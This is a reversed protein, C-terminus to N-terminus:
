NLLYVSRDPHMQLHKIFNSTTSGADKIKYNVACRAHQAEHSPMILNHYMSSTHKGDDGCLTTPLKLKYDSSANHAACVAIQFLGTNFRQQMYDEAFGGSSSTSPIGLFISKNKNRSYM